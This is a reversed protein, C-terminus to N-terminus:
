SPEPDTVERGGVVKLPRTAADAATPRRDVALAVAAEGSLALGQAWLRAVASEGLHRASALYKETRRPPLPPVGASERLAAAAAALQVAREPQKEQVALTAFVELGRAVGIRTGTAQSLEISNTLHQRAQEVARLDMAVRGLGALCRAIEPRAGIEELIALAEVYRDHAEGPHRRVRALDGLGLLVRAV